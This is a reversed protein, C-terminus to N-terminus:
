DIEKKKMFRVLLGSFISLTQHNWCSMVVTLDSMQAMSKLTACFYSTKMQRQYIKRGRFAVLEPVWLNASQFVSSPNIVTFPPKFAKFLYLFIVSASSLFISNQCLKSVTSFNLETM